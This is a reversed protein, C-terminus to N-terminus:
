NKKWLDEWGSKKISTTITKRWRFKAIILNSLADDKNVFIKAKERNLIRDNKGLWEVKYFNEDWSIRYILYWLNDPSKVIKYERKM